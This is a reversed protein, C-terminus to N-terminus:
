STSISWAQQDLEPFSVQYEGPKIGEVKAYGNENLTGSDVVSGDTRLVKYAM